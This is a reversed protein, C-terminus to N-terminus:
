SKSLNIDIFLINCIIIQVFGDFIFIIKTQLFCYDRILSTDEEKKELYFIFIKVLMLSIQDRM